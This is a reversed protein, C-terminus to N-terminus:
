GDRRMTRFIYSFQTQDNIQENQAVLQRIDSKRRKEISYCYYCHHVTYEAFKAPKGKTWARHVKM